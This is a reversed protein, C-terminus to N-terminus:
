DNTEVSRVTIRELSWNTPVPQGAGRTGTGLGDFLRSLDTHQGTMPGRTRVGQFNFVGPQPIAEASTVLFFSDMGVPKLVEFLFGEGAPYKLTLPLDSFLSIDNEVNGLREPPYLLVGDGNRDIVFLYIYRKDARAAVAAVRARELDLASTKLLMRYREGVVLTDGSAKREGTATNEFGVFEYPFTGDPPPSELNMWGWILDLKAADIALLGALFMRTPSVARWDSRPPSPVSVAGSLAERLVWAYGAGVSESRGMLVYDSASASSTLETPRAASRIRDTVREEMEPFPPLSVFLSPARDDVKVLSSLVASVDIGAGMSVSSGDWRRLVWEGEWSLLHDPASETPDEIWRLRPSEALEAAAALSQKLEDHSVPPPVYLRLPASATSVWREVRFLDGSKPLDNAETIEATSRSMGESGTVRLRTVQGDSGERVLETGPRLGLALGGQLVVTGDENSEIVPVTPSSESAVEGALSQKQRSSVGAMVPEQTAGAARMIARARLFLSEATEDPKSALFARALAWSFVGRPNGDPDVLERAVEDDQAASLILAGREVPKPPDSADAVPRPDPEMYRSRGGPIGRTISGSHCSDFILTLTVGRDLLDNFVDRLEKDRIDRAGKWADSPVITEDLGDMEQSETNRVQSGHGAFFFVVVDGPGSPQVLYRDISELIAARTAEENTLTTVEDFGYRATLITQMSMVDNVAGELDRWKRLVEPGTGEPPEYANIGVLLARRTQGQAPQSSWVLLILAVLSWVCRSSAIQRSMPNM